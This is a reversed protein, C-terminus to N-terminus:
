LSPRSSSFLYSANIDYKMGQFSERRKFEKQIGNLVALKDSSWLPAVLKHRPADGTLRHITIDPSMLELIDVVLSIYSERTFNNLVANTKEHPSNESASKYFEELRTGKLVHLLQLKVGFIPLGSIYYASDLMDRRTEGPLGLILHVVTRIGDRSLKDLSSDFVSLPYCRNILDATREHITQLGLEIWLFTVQNLEKLLDLVEDNLCDPRTAIALGVVNPYRLAEYFLTHMRATDGYTNTFKQFYAIYKGNPWKNKLLEIQSTLQEHIPFSSNGAFDGSGKESCFICGGTGLTGDRNPCTFGGDVSLKIIKCGFECKLYRGIANYPDSGAFTRKSDKNM